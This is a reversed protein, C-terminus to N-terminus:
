SSFMNETLNRMHQQIKARENAREQLLDRIENEVEIVKQKELALERELESYRVRIQKMEDIEANKATIINTQKNNEEELAKLRDHMHKATEILRKEKDSNGQSINKVQEELIKIQKNRRSWKDENSELELRLQEIEEQRQGNEFKLEEKRTELKQVLVELEEATNEAKETRKAMQASKLKLDRTVSNLSDIEKEKIKITNRNQKEKLLETELIEIKAILNGKEKALDSTQNALNTSWQEREAQLGKLIGDQQTLTAVLKSKEKQIDKLQIKSKQEDRYRNDALEKAKRIADVLREIKDELDTITKQSKHLQRKSQELEDNSRQIAGNLKEHNIRFTVNEEKINEMESLLTNHRTTETILASRFENELQKYENQHRNRYEHFASQLQSNKQALIRAFEPGDPDIANNLKKELSLITEEKQKLIMHSNSLEDELKQLSNQGVKLEQCLKDNQYKASDLEKQHKQINSKEIRNEKSLRAISQELTDTKDKEQHFYIKFKSATELSAELQSSKQTLLHQQESIKNQSNLIDNQYSDKLKELELRSQDCITQLTNLEQFLKSCNSCKDAKKSTVSSKSTQGGVSTSKVSKAKKPKQNEKETLLRKIMNELNQIREQTEIQSVEWKSNNEPIHKRIDIIDPGSNPIWPNKTFESRESHNTQNTFELSKGAIMIEKSFDGSGIERNVENGYQDIGDIAILSPLNRHLINNCGEIPNDKINLFKLTRVNKLANSCENPNTICNGHLLIEQIVHNKSSLQALGPISVLLNYSLNLKELSILYKFHDINNPINKILNSSLNLDKLNVLSDFGALCSISNASLDLEILNVFHLGTTSTLNNGHLNLSVLYDPLHLVEIDEIDECIRSIRTVKFDGM